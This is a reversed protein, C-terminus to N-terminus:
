QVGGCAARFRDILTKRKEHVGALAADRHKVASAIEAMCGEVLNRCNKINLNHLLIENELDEIDRVILLLESRVEHAFPITNPLAAFEPDLRGNPLTSM